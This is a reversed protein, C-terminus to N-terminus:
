VQFTNALQSSVKRGLHVARMDHRTCHNTKELRKRIFKLKLQALLKQVYVYVCYLPNCQIVDDSNVYVYCLPNCRIVDDGYVYVCHIVNYSMMVM